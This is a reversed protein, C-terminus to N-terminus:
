TRGTSLLLDIIGLPPYLMSFCADTWAVRWSLPGCGRNASTWRRPGLTGAYSGTRWRMRHWCRMAKRLDDLGAVLVMPATLLNTANIMLPM